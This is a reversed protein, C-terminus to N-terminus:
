RGFSDIPVVHKWHISPRVARSRINSAADTILWVKVDLLGASVKSSEMLDLLTDQYINIKKQAGKRHPAVDPSLHKAICRYIDPKLPPIM